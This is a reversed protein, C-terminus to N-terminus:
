ALPAVMRPCSGPSTTVIEASHPSVCSSPYAVASRLAVFPRPCNVISNSRKSTSYRNPLRRSESWAIGRPPFWIPMHSHDREPWRSGETSGATSVRRPNPGNRPWHAM